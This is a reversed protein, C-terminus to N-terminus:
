RRTGKRKLVLYRTGGRMRKRQVYSGRVRKHKRNAKARTGFAGHFTVKRGRGHHSV